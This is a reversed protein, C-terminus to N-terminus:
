FTKTQCLDLALCWSLWKTVRRQWLQTSSPFFFFYLFAEQTLYPCPPSNWPSFLSLKLQLTFNIKLLILPPYHFTFYAQLIGNWGWGRGGEWWCHLSFPCPWNMVLIKKWQELLPTRGRHSQPTGGVPQCGEWFQQLMPREKWPTCDEWSLSSWGPLLSEKEGSPRGSSWLRKWVGVERAHACGWPSCTSRQMGQPDVHAAPPCCSSWWPWWWLRCLFRPEPAQLVEQGGEGSVKTDGHQKGWMTEGGGRRQSSAFGM